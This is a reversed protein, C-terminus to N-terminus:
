RSFLLIYSQKLYKDINDCKSINRDNCIYWEENERICSIYHGGGVSGIHVIIGILYYENNDFNYTNDISIDNDLKNVLNTFRKFSFFMYKPYNTIVLKKTANVKKNIKENYYQNDDILQEEKFYENLCDMFTINEKNPIPLSLIKDNENREFIENTISCRINSKIKCDFLFELLNSNDCKTYLKNELLNFNKELLEFICVLFESSDAQIFNTFQNYESCLLNILIRPGLTNVDERYYDEITKKYGILFHNNIENTLLLQNLLKCKFLLQLGSNLYCTNGLNNLGTLKNFNM